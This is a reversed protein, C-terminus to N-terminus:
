READNGKSQDAAPARPGPQVIAPLAARAPLQGQTAVRLAERAQEDVVAGPLAPLTDRVVTLQSQLVAAIDHARHADGAAHHADHLAVAVKGLQRLLVAQAVTGSGGHAVSSLLLAAGRASPLGAQRPRVQHARLQASRALSDATAALPGPTAEVQLSWAAFAGATERAVHAWLARDEVAVARLKERLATVERTYRTWLEPDPDRTERGTGAPRQNRKAARWEGLAASAHQPTDPWDARSRPLTLDRALRGGGYWVPAAGACPRLAVSYGAVTSDSGAAYRPRIRVGTRRVRRVFEAEDGAAAACARVMRALQAPATEPAGRRAANEREGPRQGRVTHGTERSELLELGYERELEGAIRQANPRDNWVNAKAGDEAVLGVVIHVHDNGAGSPGHRVAVWRCPARGGAREAFGMRTVFDESIQAWREDSLAPEQARLSLSCHWVHADKVGVKNGDRDKVPLTVRTGFARRPHDLAWGIRLATENDLALRHQWAMIARDGAVLHAAEHENHRGPGALYVMLGTMRAGRTINPM